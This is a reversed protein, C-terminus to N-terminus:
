TSLRYAALQVGNGSDVDCPECSSTVGETVLELCSLPRTRHM